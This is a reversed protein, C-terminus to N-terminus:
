PTTTPRPLMWIALDDFAVTFGEATASRVFFGLRGRGPFTADNAEAVKSGNIYFVYATEQVLIGLRNSSGPATRIRDSKHAPLLQLTEEGTWATFSHAGGCTVGYLYGKDLDPARFLLGFRDDAQCEEPMQVTAEVYFDVTAQRTLEWCARGERGVATMWFKGDMIQSSFCTAAGPPFTVWNDDNDLADVLDPNGLDAAPEGDPQWIVPNPLGPTSPFQGRSVPALLRSVIPSIQEQGIVCAILALIVLFLAIAPASLYKERL